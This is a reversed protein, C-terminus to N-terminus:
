RGRVRCGERAGPLALAERLAGPVAGCRGGARTGAQSRRGPALRRKSVREKSKM